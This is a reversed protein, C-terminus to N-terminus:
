MKIDVYIYERIEELWKELENSEKYSEAFSRIRDYDEELSLKHPPVIDILKYLEYGYDSGRSISRVPDTIGGKSIGRLAELTMSDLREIPVKGLYGDKGATFEDQSYEKVANEFSIENKDIRGKLEKLFSITELDSSEFKPFTVLIHQVRIKDGQRDKLKLIHYGFETEVIDSVEGVELLYAAEEFPKVFTGKKAYGLDGGMAASGSDASNRIALESFDIGQNVSDLIQRAIRFAESKEADSVKRKMYIHALEFEEDVDPLSDRYIAFFEKVDRDTVKVGGPFKERKLKEVRINKRLEEKLLNRIRALPMGYAAELREVSGSQAIMNDMRGSLEKDVEEDTAYISDQEAKALLIKNTLISQFIQQAMFPSIETLRNQRAYLQVQYQFDSETIIERGVIAIIRDGEAQAYADASLFCIAFAALLFFKKM